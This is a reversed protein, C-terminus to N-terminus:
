WRAVLGRLHCPRTGPLFQPIVPYRFRSAGRAWDTLQRAHAARRAPRRPRRLSLWSQRSPTGTTHASPATSRCSRAVAQCPSSRSISSAPPLPRNRAIRPFRLTGPFTPVGPPIRVGKTAGSGSAAQRRRGRLNSSRDSLSSHRPSALSHGACAAYHPVSPATQRCWVRGFAASCCATQGHSALPFCRATRSRDADGQNAAVGSGGACDISAAARPRAAQM